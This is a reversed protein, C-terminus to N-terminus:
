CAGVSTWFREWFEHDSTVLDEYLAMRKKDNSRLAAIAPMIPALFTDAAKRFDDIRLDDSRREFAIRHAAVWVAIIVRHIGGTLEIILSILEDNLELSNHVYQYRSLIKLFMLFGPADVSDYNPIHHYGSTIIRGVTSLRRTLAGVGDPTGSVLLPIQYQNTLTLIWKLLADEVISLQLVGDRSTRRKRQELTPIHFFNQVEDLHLVGLFHIMAVQLWEDLAKMGQAGTRPISYEFRCPIDPRTRRVIADWEYMLTRALDAPRGGSPVNTSMWVVQHHPGVIKPFDPHVIVQEPYSNLGRLIAETKGVGSHGVTVAAMAPARPTKHAVPGGAVVSWTKAALPDRYRYGQRVMLEITEMLRLGEHTPVHLDRLSMLQHLRIHYPISSMDGPTPPLFSLRSIADERSQIPGLRETLINGAYPDFSSYDSM